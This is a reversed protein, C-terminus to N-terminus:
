VLYEKGEFRINEGVGSPLIGTELQLM